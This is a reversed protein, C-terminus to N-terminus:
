CSVACELRGGDRAGLGALRWLRFLWPRGHDGAGLKRDAGGSIAVVACGRGLLGVVQTLSSSWLERGRVRDM